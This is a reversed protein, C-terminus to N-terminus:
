RNSFFETNDSSPQTLSAEKGDILLPSRSYEGTAVYRDEKGDMSPIQGGVVVCKDNMLARLFSCIRIASRCYMCFHVSIGGLVLDIGENKYCFRLTTDDDFDHDSDMAYGMKAYKEFSLDSPNKEQTTLNLVSSHCGPM